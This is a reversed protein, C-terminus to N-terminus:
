GVIRSVVALIKEWVTKRPKYPHICNEPQNYVDPDNTFALDFCVRDKSAKVASIVSLMHDFDECIIVIEVTEHIETNLYKSHKLCNDIRKLKRLLDDEGAFTRRVSEVFVTKNKFQITANPRFIHDNEKANCNGREAVISAMSITTAKSIYNQSLIFQLSSLLRKVATADLGDVYGSLMPHKGKSKVFMQGKAALSYVKNLSKGAPSAFEMKTLYGAGSLKALSARIENIDVEELGLQLLYKHLLASTSVLMENIALMALQDIDTLQTDRSVGVNIVNLKEAYFVAFPSKKNVATNIVNNTM